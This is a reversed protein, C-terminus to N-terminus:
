RGGQKILTYFLTAHPISDFAKTFDIFACYFRGGRRCLYKQALSYLTFIHDTTSWGKRYACQTENIIENTEAWESLRNCLIKTFIKGMVPLLSIGRYNKVDGRFIQSTLAKCWAEPFEGSTMIANFLTCLYHLLVNPSCKIVEYLVGDPYRKNQLLM